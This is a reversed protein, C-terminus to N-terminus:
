SLEGTRALASVGAPKLSLYFTAGENPRGEAWTLGGHRAVIRRVSALGIGTGEFEDPRHLRQFVGFLKDAYKMDFGAGNDRVFLVLRGDKDEGATGVEIRAPHRHRSYKVAHSLLNVFVQRLMARDGRVRPLDSVQWEIARDNVDVSRRVENVLSNLEVEAEAMETRGMRSFSLLDDILQGMERGSDGITKLYRRAKDSLQDGPLERTLMEVYGQIHRLPARLDHSVSYSFAELEKNAAGLQTNMEQVRQMAHYMEAEMQEMRTRLVAPEVPADRRHLVFDTVDEVRHILYIVSGNRNLLPSNIPSWYRVEFSGDPRRIDYKQIPMSDAVRNRLVRQLSARLNRAGDAAPDDPNDPFVEFLNQGVIADRTTMTAALYADSATVIQLSPTLVLYLGPLSEFLARLEDNLQRVRDETRRSETIDRATAYMLGTRPDPVSRWSLLRWSGDKHRYRNEFNLVRQGTSMQREVEAVTAARDDPHVLEVFPRARFEEPSWGLMETVGPSVRKFYGDSSSICLFDMSLSFFKELEAQARRATTVDRFILAAGVVRGDADRIPAASDDIAREFGRRSILVTEGALTQIMGTALAERVPMPAPERTTEHVIRFVEEVPQGRADAESWGTLLQAVPNLLTVRGERDTALVGDGISNLTTALNEQSQRLAAESRRRMQIERRLLAFTGLLLALAVVCGIFLAILAGQTSAEVRLSRARLLGEEEVRMQQLTERIADMEGAGAPDGREHRALVEAMASLKGEISTALIGLRRQQAPNDSTLERLEAVLRKARSPTAEYSELFARDGTLVYGRLATEGEQMVGLTARVRDLVEYTHLVERSNRLLRVGHRVVGGSMVVLLALAVVLGVPQGSRRLWRDFRVGGAVGVGASLLLLAVGTPFAIPKFPGLASLRPLDYLAGIFTLVALVVVPLVLWGIARRRQGPQLLAVAWGLFVFNCATPLSMRGPAFDSGPVSAVRVLWQDFGPNWGSAYEVVTVAGVWAVLVALGGAFRTRANRVPSSAKLALALGLLVLGVATNPSAYVQGPWWSRLLPVDGLWGILISTGIGAATWGFAVARRPDEWPKLASQGPMPPTSVFAFDPQSPALM